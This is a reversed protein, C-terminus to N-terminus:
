DLLKTVEKNISSAYYIWYYFIANLNYNVQKDTNLIDQILWYLANEIVKYIYNQKILIYCRTNDLLKYLKVNLIALKIYLM